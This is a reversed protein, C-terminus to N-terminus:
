IGDFLGIKQSQVYMIFTIRAIHLTCLTKILDYLVHYIM